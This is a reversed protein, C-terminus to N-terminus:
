VYIAGFARKKVQSLVRDAVLAITVFAIVGSKYYM